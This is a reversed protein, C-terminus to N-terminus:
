RTHRNTRKPPDGDAGPALSVPSLHVYQNHIGAARAKLVLQEVGLGALNVGLAVGLADTNLSGEDPVLLVADLALELDGQGVMARGDVVDELDELADVGLDLADAVADNLATPVEGIGGDHGVLGEGLNTLDGREGRQVVIGLGVDDLDAAVHEGLEGVDDHGVGREVVVHGLVGPAVRERAVHDVLVMHALVASVARAVAEDPAGDVLEHAILGVLEHAAVEAGAGAEAGDLVALAHVGGHAEGREVAEDHAGAGAGDVRGRHEIEVADAAVGDVLDVGHHVLLGAQEGDAGLGGVRAVDLLAHVLAVLVAGHGHLHEVIAGSLEEGLHCSRHLADVRHGEGGADALVGHGHTLANGITESPHADLDVGLEVLDARVLRADDGRGVGRDGAEHNGGVLLEHDREVDLTQDLALLAFM